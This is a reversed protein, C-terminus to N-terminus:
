SSQASVYCCFMYLGVRWNNRLSSGTKLPNVVVDTGLPNLDDTELPKVILEWHTLMM